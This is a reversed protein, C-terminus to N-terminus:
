KEHAGTVIVRMGDGRGRVKERYMLEGWPAPQVFSGESAARVRFRFSHTGKPLQNFYYRVEHDLRQKM